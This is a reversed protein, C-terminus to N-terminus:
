AVCTMKKMISYRATPDAADIAERLPELEGAAIASVLRKQCAEKAREKAEEPSERSVQVGYSFMHM